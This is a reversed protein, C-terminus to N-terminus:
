RTIAIVLRCLCTTKGPVIDMATFVASTGQQLRPHTEEVAGIRMQVVPATQDLAQIHRNRNVCFMIAADPPHM